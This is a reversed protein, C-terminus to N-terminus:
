VPAASLSLSLTHTHTHSLYNARVAFAIHDHLMARLQHPISEFADLLRTAIPGGLTPQLGVAAAHV